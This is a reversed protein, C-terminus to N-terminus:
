KKYKNILAQKEKHYTKPDENRLASMDRRTDNSPNPVGGLATTSRAVKNSFLFPKSEKMKQVLEKVGKVDGNDSLKLDATDILKSLVEYDVVGANMAEVELAKQVARQESVILRKETDSLKRDNDELKRSVTKELEEIRQFAKQAIEKFEQAEKENDKARNRYKASEKRLERVHDEYDNDDAKGKSVTRNSSTSNDEKTTAQDNVGPLDDSTGNDSDNDLDAM